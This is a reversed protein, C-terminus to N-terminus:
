KLNLEWLYSDKKNVFFLYNQADDLSLKIGDIDEGNQISVPDLIKTTNGTVPDIKWVEDSFSIEGQYWSDPYQGPDIFKPVACYIVDSAIGWVCKESLTKIGVPTSAGTTINFINLSLNNNSYLVMKEDPSTLTTLGNIGGLIKNIDKKDTNIAYAYGPVSASPKTTVTIIKNNSWSSLRETFPSDFVQVKTSTQLALTIGAVSDGVDFLYFIQSSDPSVSMDSINEPLFIGTIQSTGVSDAGLYEKPLDGVFTEITKNDKLYRMVVSQGKNGFFAEYVKPITTNSFRREDIKDAFTQYINGTARNVYRLAPMFETPPAVPVPLKPTVVKAGKKTTDPTTVPIITTTDPTPTVVPNPNAIDKFREKMFVGFGAIPFTSVKKLKVDSTQTEIPPVYGSVDTPPTVNNPITTTSKGFPLFNAFFNTDGATNINKSQPQYFYLFGLAGIVLIGLVVILLILNRKSM